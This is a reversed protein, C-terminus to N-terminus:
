ARGRGGGSHHGGGRYDAERSPDGKVGGTDLGQRGGGQIRSVRYICVCVM